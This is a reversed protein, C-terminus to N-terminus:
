RKREKDHEWERIPDPVLPLLSVGAVVAAM